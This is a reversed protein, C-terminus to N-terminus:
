VGAGVEWGVRVEIMGMRDFSHSAFPEFCRWARAEREWAWVQAVEMMVTLRAKLGEFEPVEM